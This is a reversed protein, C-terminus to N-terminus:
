TGTDTQKIIHNTWVEYAILASKLEKLLGTYLLGRVVRGANAVQAKEDLTELAMEFRAEEETDYQNGGLTQYATIKKVM